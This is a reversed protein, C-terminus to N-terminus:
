RQACWGDLVHCDAGTRVIQRAGGVLYAGRAPPVFGDAVVGSDTLQKSGLATALAALRERFVQTLWVHMSVPFPAGRKGLLARAARCSHVDKTRWWLTSRRLH